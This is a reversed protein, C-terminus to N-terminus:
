TCAPVAYNASIYTYRTLQDPPHNLATAIM